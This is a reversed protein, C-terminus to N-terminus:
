STRSLYKCTSKMKLRLKCALYEWFTELLLRFGDLFILSNFNNRIPHCIISFLLSLTRAITQGSFLFPYLVLRTPWPSFLTSLLDFMFSFRIRTSSYSQRSYLSASCISNGITLSIISFEQKPRPVRHLVTRCTSPFFIELFILKIFYM